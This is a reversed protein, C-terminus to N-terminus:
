VIGFTLLSVAVVFSVNVALGSALFVGNEDPSASGHLGDVSRSGGPEGRFRELARGTQESAM